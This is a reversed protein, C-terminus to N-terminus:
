STWALRIYSAADIIHGNLMRYAPHVRELQYGSAQAVKQSVQNSTDIMLELRRLHHNIAWTSITRLASTAFGRGRYPALIWYFFEARSRSWDLNTVGIAGMRVGDPTTILFSPANPHLGRASHERIWHQALTLNIPLVLPTQERAQEDAYSALLFDADEISWPRLVVSRDAARLAPWPRWATLLSGM